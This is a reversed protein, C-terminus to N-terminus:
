KNAQRAKRRRDRAAKSNDQKNSKKEIALDKGTFGRIFDRHFKGQKGKKSM